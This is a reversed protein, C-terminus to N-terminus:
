SGQAVQFVTGRQSVAHMRGSDVQQAPQALLIVRASHRRRAERRERNDNETAGLRDTLQGAGLLYARRCHSAQNDAHLAVPEDFALPIRGICSHDPNARRGFSVADQSLPAPAADGEKRAIQGLQRWGFHLM